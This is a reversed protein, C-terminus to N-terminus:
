YFTDLNFTEIYLNELDYISVSTASVLQLIREKFHIDRDYTPGIAKLTAM